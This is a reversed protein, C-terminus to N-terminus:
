SDNVKSGYKKRLREMVKENNGLEENKSSRWLALFIFFSVIGIISLILETQNLKPLRIGTLLFWIAIIFLFAIGTKKVAKSNVDGYKSEYSAKEVAMKNEMSTKSVNQQGRCILAVVYVLFSITLTAPVLADIGSDNFAIGSGIILACIGLVTLWYKRSFSDVIKEGKSEIEQMKEVQPRTWGKPIDKFYKLRFFIPLGIFLLILIGFLWGFNSVDKGKIGLFSM